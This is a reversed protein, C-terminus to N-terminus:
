PGAGGPPQPTPELWRLDYGNAELAARAADLRDPDIAWDRSLIWGATGDPVGVVAAEYDPDLHIVWYDGEFPLWPIFRVKLRANTGDVARAVATASRERGDLRDQRCTNLVDVRGDGRLAYDATVGVCGEQFSVPFRAVEYWRGAYRELDVAAVPEMPVAVDRYVPRSCAALAALAAAALVAGLPLDGIRAAQRRGM